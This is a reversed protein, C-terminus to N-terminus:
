KKEQSAGSAVSRRLLLIDGKETKRCEPCFIEGGVRFKVGRASFHRM